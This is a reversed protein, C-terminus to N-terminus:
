LMCMIRATCVKSLQPTILQSATTIIDTWCDRREGTRAHWADVFSWLLSPHEDAQAFTLVCNCCTSSRVLFEAAEHLLPTANWKAHLSIYAGRPDYKGAPEVSSIQLLALALLICTCRARM